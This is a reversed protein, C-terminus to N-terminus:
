TEDFSESSFKDDIDQSSHYLRSFFIRCQPHLMEQKQLLCLKFLDVDERPHRCGLKKIEKFCGRTFTLREVAPHAEFNKKHELHAMVRAPSLFILLTIFKAM